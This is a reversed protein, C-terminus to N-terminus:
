ELTLAEAEYARAQEYNELASYVRVLQRLLQKRKLSTRRGNTQRAIQEAPESM